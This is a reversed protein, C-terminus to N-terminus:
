IAFVIVHLVLDINPKVASVWIYREDNVALAMNLILSCYKSFNVIYQMSSVKM